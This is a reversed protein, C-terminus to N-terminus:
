YKVVKLIRVEDACTFRVFYVGAPLYSIDIDAKPETIQCHYLKLGNMSFIDIVGQNIPLKAEITFHSSSPSPYINILSELTGVNEFGVGCADEVEEQSVCGSANDHIEITGNPNALYDCISQVACESLDPNSFISLNKISGAAINDIGVLSILSDNAAIFLDDGISNLNELGLFNTIQSNDVIRVYDGISTLANLGTFSTLANNGKVFFSKGVSTLNDLGTMSNLSLNNLMHFQGDISKLSELGHLNTLNNNYLISLDGGITNLNELGILCTLSPNGEDISGIAVTGNISSINELGILSTLSENEEIIISQGIFVVNDLGTLNVLLDDSYISLKEGVSTLNLLGTLTRLSDCDLIWLDEGITSLNSLGNLNSISYNTTAFSGIQVFGEIETCGPYNVQFNDIQSQTYFYIGDPLCSQSFGNYSLLLWTSITLLRKL